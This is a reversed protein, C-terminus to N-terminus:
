SSTSVLRGVPTAGSNQSGIRDGMSALWSPLSGIASVVHLTTDVVHDKIELTKALLSNPDRAPAESIPAADTSEAQAIVLPAHPPAAVVAATPPKSRAAPPKPANVAVALRRAAAAAAAAEAAKADAAARATEADDAALRSKQAATETKLYDVIMAHEDRVLRMMESSAPTAQELVPPPAIAHGGQYQSFLFGGIASALAAPLIDFIFKAFFRLLLPEDHPM